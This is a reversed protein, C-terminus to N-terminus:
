KGKGDMGYVLTTNELDVGQALLYAQEEEPTLDYPVILFGDIPQGTNRKHAELAAIRKKLDM